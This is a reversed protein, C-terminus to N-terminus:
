THLWPGTDLPVKPWDRLRVSSHTGWRYFPSVLYGHIDTSFIKSVVFCEVTDLAWDRESRAMKGRAQLPGLEGHQVHLHDHVQQELDGVGQSVQMRPAEDVAGEAGVGDM